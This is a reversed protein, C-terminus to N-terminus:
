QDPPERLLDGPEVQLAEALKRVTGFDAPKGNEIRSVSTWHLGARHALQDQTLLRQVRWHKLAPLRVTARPSMRGTLTSGVSAVAPGVSPMHQSRNDYASVITM